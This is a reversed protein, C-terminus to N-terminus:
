LIVKSVHLTLVTVNSRSENVSAMLMAMLEVRRKNVNM